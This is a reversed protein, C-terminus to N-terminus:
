TDVSESTRCLEFLIEHSYEIEEELRQRILPSFM